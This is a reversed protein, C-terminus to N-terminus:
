IPRELSKFAKILLPDALTEGKRYSAFSEAVYESWSETAYGSIGEAFQAMRAQLEDYNAVGKLYKELAHGCEHDIVSEVTDPVLGRGSRKSSEIVKRVRTSMKSLDYKEPHALIDTVAEQEALLAKEATKMNKLTARNLMFSNRV